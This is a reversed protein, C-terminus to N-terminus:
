KEHRLRWRVLDKFFGNIELPLLKMDGFIIKHLLELDKLTESYASTSEIAVKVYEIAEAIGQKLDEENDFDGILYVLETKDSAILEKLLSALEKRSYKEDMKNEM